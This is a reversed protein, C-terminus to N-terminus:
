ERPMPRSARYRTMAENLDALTRVPDAVMLRAIKEYAPAVAQSFKTPKVHLVAAGDTCSWGLRSQSNTM